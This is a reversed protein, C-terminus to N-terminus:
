LFIVLQEELFRKREREQDREKERQKKEQEMIQIQNMLRKETEGDTEKLRQIEERLMQIETEYEEPRKGQLLYYM